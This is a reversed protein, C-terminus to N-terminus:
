YMMWCDDVLEQEVVGGMVNIAISFEFGESFLFGGFLFCILNPDCGRSAM